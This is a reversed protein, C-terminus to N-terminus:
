KPSWEVWLYKPDNLVVKWGSFDTVAYISRHLNFSNQFYEPFNRDNFYRNNCDWKTPTIVILKLKTVRQAESLAFVGHIRSIHELVDSMVVVDFSKDEFPLKDTGINLVHDPNCAPFADVTVVKKHPYMKSLRKDGCGLDLVTNETIPIKFML